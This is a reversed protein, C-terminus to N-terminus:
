SPAIGSELNSDDYIMKHLANGPPVIPFCIDKVVKIDCLVPGQSYGLASRITNDLEKINDCMYSKIGYSEGLLKFNPNKKNETAVVRNEFFLKEWAQVMMQSNNNMIFIKIPLNHEVITKLDSSTMQFSSDGDILIVTKDSNAFQAGISYPLGTGMVGLSGSSIITKPFRSKIYKYTMMQHNGVGTTFILKNEKNLFDSKSNIKKLVTKM